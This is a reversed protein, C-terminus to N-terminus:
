NYISNWENPEPAVFLEQFMYIHIYIATKSFTSETILRM